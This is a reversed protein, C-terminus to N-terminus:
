QSKYGAQELLRLQIGVQTIHGAQEQVVRIVTLVSVKEEQVVKEAQIAVLKAVKVAMVVLVVPLLCKNVFLTTKTGFQMCSCFQVKSEM